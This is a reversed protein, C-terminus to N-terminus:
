KSKKTPNSPTNEKEWSSYVKSSPYDELYKKVQADVEEASNGHFIRKAEDNSVVAFFKYQKALSSYPTPQPIKGNVRLLAEEARKMTDKEDFMTGIAIRFRYPTYIDLTEVGLLNDLIFKHKAQLVFNTDGRWFNFATSPLNTENIPILGFETQMVPGTYHNLDKMDESTDDDGFEERHEKKAQHHLQRLPDKWKRWKISQENM